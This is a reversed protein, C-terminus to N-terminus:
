HEKIVKSQKGLGKGGILAVEEFKALPTPNKMVDLGFDIKENYRLIEKVVWKINYYRLLQDIYQHSVKLEKAMAVQTKSRCALALLTSRQHKLRTKDIM